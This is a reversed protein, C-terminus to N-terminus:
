TSRLASRLRPGYDLCTACRGEVPADRCAQGSRRGQCATSPSSAAPSSRTLSFDDRKLLRGRPSSADSRWRVGKVARLSAVLSRRRTAWPISGTSDPLCRRRSAPVARLGGRHTVRSTHRADSTVQQCISAVRPRDRFLFLAIRGFLSRLCDAAYRNESEWEPKVHHTGSEKFLPPFGPSGTWFLDSATAVPSVSGARNAPRRKM